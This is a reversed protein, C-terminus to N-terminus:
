PRLEADDPPGTFHLDAMTKDRPIKTEVAKPALSVGTWLTATFPSFTGASIRISLRPTGCM